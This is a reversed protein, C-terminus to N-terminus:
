KGLNLYGLHKANETETSSISAPTYDTLVKEQDLLDYSFRNTYNESVILSKPSRKLEDRWQKLTSIKTGTSPDIIYPIIKDEIRVLIVPAVHYTWFAPGAITQAYLRGRIFVKGSIIKDGDLIMAMKHARSFCGDKAYSFPIDKRTSLKAFLENAKELSVVSIEVSQKNSPSYLISTEQNETIEPATNALENCSACNAQYNINVNQIKDINSNLIKRAVISEPSNQAGLPFSYIIILSLFCKM